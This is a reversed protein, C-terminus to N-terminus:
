MKKRSYGTTVIVGLQGGARNLQIDYHLPYGGQFDINKAQVSGVMYGKSGGGKMAIDAEPAIVIASMAGNGGIAGSTGAFNIQCSEPANTLTNAVGNGHIDLSSKVNWIVFGTVTIGNNGTLSISNIDYYVPHFVDAGGVLTVSGSLESILYPNAASGNCTFGAACPQTYTNGVGPTVTTNAPPTGGAATQPYTGTDVNPAGTPFGSPFTPVPPPNIHPGSVVQGAVSSTTGSYGSATCGSTPDSGITVNGSVTVNSSLTVGGNAGVGAGADIVNAASPDNCGKAAVTVNGAAYGGFASNFADTCVGSSGGMAVSCYGYLANGWTPLYIPQVVAREEAMAVTSTSGSTGTWRARSTILWTEVPAATVAPPTGVGVTQYNLLVMDVFLLGSNNADGTVRIGGSPFDTNFNTVVGSLPYNTSGTGSISRFEVTNNSGTTVGCGSKCRVPSADSTWYNYPVGTSHVDYYTNAQSHAVGQYRSSRLWNLAQQIGAKALYDAQTDLKFNYSALTESRATFVITAALVSLVMMSLMVLIL